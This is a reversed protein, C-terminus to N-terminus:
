YCSNIFSVSFLFCPLHMLVLLMSIMIPDQLALSAAVFCNLRCLLVLDCWLLHNIFLCSLLYVCTNTPEICTHLAPRQRNWVNLLFDSSHLRKTRRSTIQATPMEQTNVQAHGSAARMAWGSSISKERQKPEGRLSCATFMCRQGSVAWLSVQALYWVPLHASVDPLDILKSVKELCRQVPPLIRM